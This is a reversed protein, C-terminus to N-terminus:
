LKDMEIRLAPYEQESFSEQDLSTIMQDVTDIGSSHSITMFYARDKDTSRASGEAINATISGVSRKIQSTLGYIEDKPFQKTLKYIKKKFERAIQWIELKEFAYTYYPQKM